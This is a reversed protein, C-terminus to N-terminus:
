RVAWGRLPTAASISLSSNDSLIIVTNTARHAATPLCLRPTRVAILPTHRERFNSADSEDSVNNSM